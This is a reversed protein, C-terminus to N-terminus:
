IRPCAQPILSITDTSDLHRNVLWDGSVFSLPPLLDSGAWVKAGIERPRASRHGTYSKSRKMIVSFCDEILDVRCREPLSRRYAYRGIGVSVLADPIKLADDRGEIIKLMIEADVRDPYRGV